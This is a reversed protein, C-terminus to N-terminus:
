FGILEIRTLTVRNGVTPANALQWATYQEAYASEASVVDVPVITQIGRMACGSATYLVGGHAATGVVIAAKIDKDKLIKELDTHVFKDAVSTVQPESGLPALESLIDATKSTAALTYIVLMGKARAEALLKQVKPVSTVCRPRRESNCTQRAFDVMLLATTKPDVTVAKLAPAPPAKVTAWEDVITQACATAATLAAVAVLARAAVSYGLSSTAVLKM